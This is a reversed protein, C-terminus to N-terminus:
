SISVTPFNSVYDKTVDDNLSTQPKFIQCRSIDRAQTSHDGQLDVIFETGKEDQPPCQLIIRNTINSRSEHEATM